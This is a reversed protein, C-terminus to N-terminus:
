FAPFQPTVTLEELQKLAMPIILDIHHSFIFLGWGSGFGSWRGPSEKQEKCWSPQARRDGCRDTTETRRGEHLTESARGGGEGPFEEPVESGEWGEGPAWAPDEPRKGGGWGRRHCSSAWM